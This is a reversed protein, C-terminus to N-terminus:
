VIQLQQIQNNVHVPTERGDLDNKEVLQNYANYLESYSKHEEIRLNEPVSYCRVQNGSEKQNYPLLESASSGGPGNTLHEDNLLTRTESASKSFNPLISPSSSSSDNSNISNQVINSDITIELGNSSNFSGFDENRQTNKSQFKKLLNRAHLIRDNSQQEDVSM